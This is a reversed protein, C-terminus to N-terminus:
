PKCPSVVTCNVFSQSAGTVCVNDVKIPHASYAKVGISHNSITSNKVVIKEGASSSKRMEVAPNANAQTSKIKVDQFLAPSTWNWIQIPYKNDTLTAGVISFHPPLSVVQGTNHVLIGIKSGVDIYGTIDGAGAYSAHIGVINRETRCNKLTAAPSVLFGAGFDTNLDKPYGYGMNPDSMLQLTGPHAPNGTWAKQGCNKAV